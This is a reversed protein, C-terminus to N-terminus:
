SAGPFGDKFRLAHSVASRSIGLFQAITSGRHGEAIARLAFDRRAQSLRQFRLGPTGGLLDIGHETKIQMALVDLGEPVPPKPNERWCFYHREDYDPEFGDSSASMAESYIRRAEEPEPSLYSLARDVDVLSSRIAGEFQHASSWKWDVANEVMEADVPNKHLYPLLKQYYRDGRCIKSKYRAQFIHGLRGNKRNTARSYRCLVRRMISELSALGLELLLHFHNSMLCYALVRCRTRLCVDALIALFLVRDESDFFINRGGNGRSYAHYVAGPKHERTKRGM